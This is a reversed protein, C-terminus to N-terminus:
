RAAEMYDPCEAPACPRTELHHSCPLKRVKCGFEGCNACGSDRCLEWDEAKLSRTAKEIKQRAVEARRKEAQEAEAFKRAAVGGSIPAIRAPDRKAAFVAKNRIWRNLKLGWNTIPKGWEDRWFAMAMDEFWERIFAEDRFNMIDRAMSIAMELTPPPIADVTERARASPTPPLPINCTLNTDNM